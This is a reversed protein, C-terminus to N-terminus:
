SLSRTKEKKHAAIMAYFEKFLYRSDHPGPAAEPHYQVSFAPLTKHRIGAVTNDNLNVHTIEVNSPLSERELAFNHNQSTIEVKGTVLNKIPHNLGHHGFKLKYTKAGLAQGLIQHGLCIGFLPLKGLIREVLETVNHVYEPDGPGNSIFIGDFGGGLITDIHTSSSFVTCDLRNEHFLRLINHKAGCDIVAIKFDSNEPRPWRYSKDCSVDNVMNIGFIPSTESLRATLEKVPADYTTIAAKCAGKERLYKTMARTDLGEVGLVGHELLYDRLTCTSRWNSPTAIYEKVLLAELYVRKSEADENNIGYSGILPYTMVVAQGKYSPDTLIEQYGTMGTNFVVEAYKDGSLAFTKGHFVRGDQFVVRVAKSIAAM